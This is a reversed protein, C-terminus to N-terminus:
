CSLHQSWDARKTQSDPNYPKTRTEERLDSTFSAVGADGSRESDVHPRSPRSFAAEFVLRAWATAIQNWLM